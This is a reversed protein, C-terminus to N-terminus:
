GSISCEMLGVRKAMEKFHGDRHFLPVGYVMAVTAILLDALNPTFGERRLTFVNEVAALWVKENTNFIKLLAFKSRERDLDEETKSGAAVEVFVIETSAAKDEEILRRVEDGTKSEGPKRNSFEIWASTDILVYGNSM